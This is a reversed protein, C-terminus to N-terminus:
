AKRLGVTINSTQSSQYEPLHSVHSDELTVPVPDDELLQGEYGYTLAIVKTDM